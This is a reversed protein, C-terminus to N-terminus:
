TTKLCYKIQNLEFKGGSGPVVTQTRMYHITFNIKLYALMNLCNLFFDGSDLNAFRKYLEVLILVNNKKEKM